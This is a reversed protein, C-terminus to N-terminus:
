GRRFLGAFTLLGMSAVWTYYGIGLNMSGDGEHGSIVAVLISVILGFFGCVAVNIWAEYALSILGLCLSFNPLTAWCTLMGYMNDVCTYMVGAGSDRLDFGSEGYVPLVLSVAYM